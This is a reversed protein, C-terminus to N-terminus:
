EQDPNRATMDAAYAFAASLAAQLRKRLMAPPEGLMFATMAVDLLEERERERAAQTDQQQPQPRTRDEDAWLGADAIRQELEPRGDDPAYFIGRHQLEMRMGTISFMYDPAGLRRLERIRAQEPDVTTKM